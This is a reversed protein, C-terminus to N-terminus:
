SYFTRHTECAIVGSELVWKWMTWWFGDEEVEETKGSLKTVLTSTELIPTFLLQLRQGM